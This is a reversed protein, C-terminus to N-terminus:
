EEVGLQKETQELAKYWSPLNSLDVGHKNMQECLETLCKQVLLKSFKETNVINSQYDWCQKAIQQIIANM